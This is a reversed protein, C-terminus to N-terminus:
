QLEGSAHQMLKQKLENLVDSTIRSEIVREVLFKDEGKRVQRLLGLKILQRIYRGVQDVTRREDSAETLFARMMEYIDQISLILNEDGDFQQDHEDLRERLLVALLTQEFTLSRQRTLRPLKNPRGDEDERPQELYAYGSEENLILRLGIRAFYEEISTRYRMLLEWTSTDHHSLVSQLLKLLVPAYPEVSPPNM